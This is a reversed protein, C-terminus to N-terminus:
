GDEGTIFPRGCVSETYADLNVQAQDIREANRELWRNAAEAQEATGTIATALKDASQAFLRADEAIAGPALEAANEVLEVFDRPDEVQQQETATGELYDCLAEDGAARATKSSTASPDVSIRTAPSESPQQSRTPSGTASARPYASAAPSSTPPTDRPEAQQDTACGALVFPMAVVISWNPAV